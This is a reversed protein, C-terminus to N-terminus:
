VRVLRVSVGSSKDDPITRSEGETIQIELEEISARPGSTIEIRDDALAVGTDTATGRGMRQLFDQAGAPENAEVTIASILQAGNAHSQYQPKWFVDPTEQECVFFGLGDLTPLGTFALRFAVRKDSGDPQRAMREFNFPEYTRLGEAKWEQQDTDRDQSTLVLMSLGEGRQQLWDRNHAAFSFFSNTTEEIRSPDDIEVFEIFNGQLQILCNATGFPHVARPTVTFGLSEWLTKTHELDAVTIVVHDINRATM